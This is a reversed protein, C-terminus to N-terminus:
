IKKKRVRIGTSRRNSERHCATNTDPPLTQIQFCARSSNAILSSLYVPGRIKGASLTILPLIGRPTSAFRL